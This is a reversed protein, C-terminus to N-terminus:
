ALREHKSIGSKHCTAKYEISFSSRELKLTNSNITCYLFTLVEVNVCTGTHVIYELHSCRSIASVLLIRKNFENKHSCTLRIWVILYGNVKEKDSANQSLNFIANESRALMDSLKLLLRMVKELEDIYSKYKDFQKCDLGKEAIM